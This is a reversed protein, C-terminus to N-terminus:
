KLSVAATAETTASVLNAHPSDQAQSQFDDANGIIGDTWMDKDSWVNRFGNGFRTRLMWSIGWCAEDLLRNALSPDASKLKEALLLMACAAEATNVLGQSLDGADHWGGHIPVSLDGHTCLWDLHCADHIGAVAFGCRQTYFHNVTKIVSSRYVGAFAGITFPETRLTGVELMYIGDTNVESFDMLRFTGLPTNQTEIRGEKVTKGSARDKLYFLEGAPESTFATKPYGKAYGAHNYAIQGPAVNWGEFHDANVKELCVDDIFYRATATAGPEHGQLRYRIEIGTVKERGLHAIEWYVRNWQRNNLVQYNLGNRGRPLKDEGDNHFVLSISVVKFGPLDPYIWLSIRNWDTWDEGGVKYFASAVGWPRGGGPPKDGKVPSELLLSQKGQHTQEASLTLSGFGRHEWAGMTEMDSLRESAQVQKQSWAYELSHEYIATMPMPPLDDAGARDARCSLMAAFAIFLGAYNIIKIM